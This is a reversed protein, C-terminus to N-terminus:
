PFDIYLSIRFIAAPTGDQADPVPSVPLSSSSSTRIYPCDRLAATFALVQHLSDWGLLRFFCWSQGAGTVFFQHTLNNHAQPFVRRAFAESSRRLTHVLRHFKQGLAVLFIGFGEHFARKERDGVILHDDDFVDLHEAQALMVHQRKEPLHM